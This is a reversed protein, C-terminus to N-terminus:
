KRSGYFPPEHLYFSQGQITLPPIVPHNRKYRLSVFDWNVVNWFSQVYASRDKRYTESYAHEWLDICLLPIGQESATDMVPSKNGTTTTVKLRNNSYILWAWGESSVSNAAQAFDERFADFSGFDRIIANMLEKSPQQGRAPALM